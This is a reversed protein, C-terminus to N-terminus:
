ATGERRGRAAWARAPLSISGDRARPLRRQLRRALVGRHEVGLSSLYSPAPGTGGVFPRWYDEFSPFQMEIELPEVQVRSLGAGRFAAELVSRSCIPFRVGEDLERVSPDLEVAVDWFYRLMGMGDAYDWVCAGVTGGAASLDRMMGLAAPPDPLFNLVLLSAVADYGSPWAPLTAMSAVAYQVRPDPFHVRAHSVFTESLDTAVVSTPDTLECISRTLAGTGCGIELWHRAQPVGLWPVFARGLERSWRGMFADYALADAWRDNM